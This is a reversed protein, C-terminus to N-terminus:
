KRRSSEKVRNVKGLADQQVKRQIKMPKRAMKVTTNHCRGGGVGHYCFISTIRPIDLCENQISREM